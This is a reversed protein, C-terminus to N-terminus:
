GDTAPPAPPSCALVIAAAARADALPDHPRGPFPRGLAQLAEVLTLDRGLRARALDAACVFRVRPMRQGYRGCMTLLAGRDFAARFSVMTRAGQLLDLLRAWVDPWPPADHLDAATLGHINSYHVRGPSAVLSHFATTEVGNDIRAAGIACVRLPSRSAIELDLAVFSDM